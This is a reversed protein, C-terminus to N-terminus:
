GDAAGRPFPTAREHLWTLFGELAAAGERGGDFGKWRQRLRGVLEYCCDIPVLFCDVRDGRRHAFVAEVDPEAEGAVPCTAVIRSWDALDLSSQTAGAPGPYFATVQDTAGDRLVFMTGVPLQLAEWDQPDPGGTADRLVRDPVARLRAGPHVGDFLLACPRCACLLRRHELDVVHRHEPGCAAACLDCRQEPAPDPGLATARSGVASRDVTFRRLPGLGALDARPSM